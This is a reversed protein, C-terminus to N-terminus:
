SKDSMKDFKRSTSLTSQKRSKRTTQHGKFITVLYSNKASKVIKCM